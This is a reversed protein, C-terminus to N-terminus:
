DTLPLANAGLETALEAVIKGSASEDTRVVAEQPAIALAASLVARVQERALREHLYFIGVHDVQITYYGERPAANQPRLAWTPPQAGATRAVLPSRYLFSNVSQVNTATGLDALKRVIDIARLPAAADGLVRIVRNEFTDEM